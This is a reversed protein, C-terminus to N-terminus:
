TTRQLPGQMPITLLHNEGGTARHARQFQGPTQGTVRHFVKTFHVRDAFGSRDAVDDINAGPEKLLESAHGIRIRRIYSSLDVGMHQKFKRGLFDPHCHLHAAIEKVNFSEEMHKTVYRLAASVIYPPPPSGAPAYKELEGGNSVIVDRYWLASDKLTRRQSEYDVHILGFRQQYGEQWSFSDMLSWAFYGRIDIGEALARRLQLLHNIMFEIRGPDRVRGDHGVVDCNSMGNKTVVIPLRYHESMFKAGWYLAEPTQSWRSLTRPHGPPLPVHMPAGGPGAKVAEGQFLNCGYFDIPQRITKFDAKTAKPVAAGYARLGSEPYRGFVVPDSWWCNNWASDAWVSKTALRAANIDETTPTAPYYFSGSPTWGVTPPRKARERIVEVARGHALLAHHGAQLVDSLELRLGPAHEGRAHGVGIFCQPENLTVWHSVRDSLRDVVVATYESFWSPSEPNLWGGRVFLESPFDWHFLTIWPEIGAALLEDVLRDYFGLGAKNVAGTGNPIVRPWSVSFRYANLGIQAMLAVDTKYRHYHDCAVRGCSGDIIDGKRRTFTDWVSPGKGDADWAGEIQYASTMAGWHFKEPFSM